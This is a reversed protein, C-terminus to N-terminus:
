DVIEAKVVPQENAHGYGTEDIQTEFLWIHMTRNLQGEEEWHHVTQATYEQHYHRKVAVGDVWQHADSHGQRPGRDIEDTDVQGGAGPWGEEGLSEIFKREVGLLQAETTHGRRIDVQVIYIKLFHLSIAVFCKITQFRLHLFGHM